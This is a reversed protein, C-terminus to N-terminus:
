KQSMLQKKLDILHRRVESLVPPATPSLPKAQGIPVAVEPRIAVNPNAAVPDTLYNDLLHSNMLPTYLAGCGACPEVPPALGLTDLFPSVVKPPFIPLV